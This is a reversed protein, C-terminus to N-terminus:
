LISHCYPGSQEHQYDPVPMLVRQSMVCHDGGSGRSEASVVLVSTLFSLHLPAFCYVKRKLLSAASGGFGVILLSEAVANKHADLEFNIVWCIWAM